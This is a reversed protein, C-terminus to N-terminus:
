LAGLKASVKQRLQEIAKEREEPTWIPYDKMKAQFEELAHGFMSRDFQSEEWREHKEKVDEARKRLEGSKQQLGLLEYDLAAREWEQGAEELKAYLLWIDHVVEGFYEEGEPVKWGKSEYDYYQNWIGGIDHGLYPLDPDSASKGRVISIVDNLQIRFAEPILEGAGAKKLFYVGNYLSIHLGRSRTELEREPSISGLVGQLYKEKKEKEITQEAEDYDKAKGAELAQSMQEAEERAQYESYREKGPM